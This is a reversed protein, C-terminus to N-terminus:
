TALVIAVIAVIAFLREFYRYLARGSEIYIWDLAFDIQRVFPSLRNIVTRALNLVLNSHKAMLRFLFVSGVIM